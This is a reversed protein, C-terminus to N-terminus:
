DCSEFRLTPYIHYVTVSWPEPQKWLSLVDMVWTYFGEPGLILHVCRTEWHNSFIVENCIHGTYGQITLSLNKAYPLSSKLDFVLIFNM